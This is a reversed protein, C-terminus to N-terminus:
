IMEFLFDAIENIITENNIDNAYINLLREYHKAHKSEIYGMEEHFLISVDHSLSSCLKRMDILYNQPTAKILLGSVDIFKFSFGSNTDIKLINMARADGHIYGYHHLKQLTNLIKITQNQNPELILIGVENMVYATASTDNHQHQYEGHYGDPFQNDSLMNVICDNCKFYLEKLYTIENNIRLKIEYNDNTLVIKLAYKENFCRGRPKHVLLVCGYSGHGIM